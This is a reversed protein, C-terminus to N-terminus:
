ALGQPGLYHRILTTDSDGGRGGQAAADLVGLVSRAIAPELGLGQATDIAIGLDKRLTDIAVQVAHDGAAIRPARKDFIRSQGASHSVVEILQAADVGARSALAMAEATLASHAAVLLQNIMKVTAGAGPPGVRYVQRTCARLAFDALALAQPTAGCIAVLEGAEAGSAGGSVPGDILALGRAALREALAQAYAPAVTSGLWVVAGADLASLAGDAGELVRDVQQANHVMLLLLEAGRAAEAPTDALTGGLAAFRERAAADLDTGSVPHGAQLLRAAMAGGMIGLGIVGVRRAAPPAPAAAAPADPM